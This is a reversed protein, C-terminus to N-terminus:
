SKLKGNDDILRKKRLLSEQKKTLKPFFWSDDNQILVVSNLTEQEESSGVTAHPCIDRLHSANTALPTFQFGKPAVLGSETVRGIYEQAIVPYKKGQVRKSRVSYLYIHNGIWRLQTGKHQEKIKKAWEPFESQKLINVKKFSAYIIYYM